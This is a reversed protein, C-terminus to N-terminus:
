PAAALAELSLVFGALPSGVPLAGPVHGGLGPRGGRRGSRPCAPAARGSSRPAGQKGGLAVRVTVTQGRQAWFRPGPRVVAGSALWGQGVAELLPRPLM